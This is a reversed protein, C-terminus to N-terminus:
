QCPIAHHSILGKRATKVVQAAYLGRKTGGVHLSDEGYSIRVYTAHEGATVESVATAQWYWWFLDVFRESIMTFLAAPTLFGGTHFTQSNCIDAHAELTLVATRALAM